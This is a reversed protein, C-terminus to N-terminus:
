ALRYFRRPNDWLIRRKVTEDIDARQALTPLDGAFGERVREHPFDSAWLLVDPGLCEIALPAKLRPHMVIFVCDLEERELLERHDTYWREFGFSRATQRAKEADLDCCAVLEGVPEGLATRRTVGLRFTPYLSNSAHSGCGIFGIRVLRSM